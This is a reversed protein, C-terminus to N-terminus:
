CEFGRFSLLRLVRANKPAENEPVKHQTNAYKKVNELGKVPAVLSSREM